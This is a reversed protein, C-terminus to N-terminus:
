KLPASILFCNTEFLLSPGRIMVGSDRRPLIARPPPLPSAARCGRGYSVPFLASQPPLAVKGRHDFIKFSLISGMFFFDNSFNEGEGSISPLSLLRQNQAFDRLLFLSNSASQIAIERLPFLDFLPLIIWLSNRRSIKVECMGALNLSPFRLSFRHLPETSKLSHTQLPTEPSLSLPCLPLFLPSRSFPSSAPRLARPALFFLWVMACLPFAIPQLSSLLEPEGYSFFAAPPM